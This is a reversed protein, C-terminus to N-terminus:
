GARGGEFKFQRFSHREVVHEAIVEITGHLEDFVFVRGGVSQVMSILQNHIHTVTSEYKIYNECRGLKRTLQIKSKIRDAYPMTNELAVITVDNRQSERDLFLKDLHMGEVIVSEGRMRYVTLVSSLLGSVAACQRQLQERGLLYTSTGLWAPPSENQVRLVNRLLDTNIIHPIGLRQALLVAALSKGQFSGGLLYLQIPRKPYTKQSM